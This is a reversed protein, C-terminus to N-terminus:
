ALMVNGGTAEVQVQELPQEAPGQLVEGNSAPDFM